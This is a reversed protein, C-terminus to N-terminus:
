NVSVQLVGPSAELNPNVRPLPVIVLALAPLLLATVVLIWSVPVALFLGLGSSSSKEERRYIRQPIRTFYYIQTKVGVGAGTVIIDSPFIERRCQRKFFQISRLLTM